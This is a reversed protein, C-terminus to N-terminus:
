YTGSIVDFTTDNGGVGSMAFPGLLRNGIRENPM